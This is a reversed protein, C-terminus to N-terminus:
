GNPVELCGRLTVSVMLDYGDAVGGTNYATYQSISNNPNELEILFNENKGLVWGRGEGLEILDQPPDIWGRGDAWEGVSWNNAAAPAVGLFLNNTDTESTVWPRGDPGFVQVLPAPDTGGLENGSWEHYSAVSEIYVSSDAPCNYTSRALNVVTGYDDAPASLYTYKSDYLMIPLDDKVRRGHFM